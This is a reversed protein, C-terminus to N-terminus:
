PSLPRLSNITVGSPLVSCSEREILYPQLIVDPQSESSIMRKMLLDVAAAGQEQQPQAITSLRPYTMEGIRYNDTGLISLNAPLCKGCKLAAYIIGAANLDNSAFVASVPLSEKQLRDWAQMGDEFSHLEPCHFFHGSNGCLSSFCSQFAECCHPRSGLILIQRHGLRYLYEAALVGMARGDVFVSAVGVLPSHHFLNVVPIKRSVEQFLDVYPSTMCDAFVIGDIRNRLLQEVRKRCDEFDTYSTLVLGYGHRHACQEAGCFSTSVMSSFFEQRLFALLYSRGARLGRAVKNPQYDLDAALRLIRKQTALSAKGSGPHNLVSSVTSIAVGAAQALDKIKVM